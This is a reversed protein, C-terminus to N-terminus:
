RERFAYAAGSVLGVIGTAATFVSGADVQGLLVCGIALSLLVSTLKGLDIAHRRREPAVRVQAAV